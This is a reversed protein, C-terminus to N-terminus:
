SHAVDAVLEPEGALQEVPDGAVGARPLSTAQYLLRGALHVLEGALELCHPVDEAPALPGSM